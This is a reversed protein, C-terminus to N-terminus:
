QGVHDTQLANDFRGIRVDCQPANRDHAARIVQFLVLDAEAPDYIILGKDAMKLLREKLDGVEIGTRQSLDELTGGSLRTKLALQAEEPTYQLRLFKLFAPTVPMGVVDEEGIMEALQEYVDRETM